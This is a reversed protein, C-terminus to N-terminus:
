AAVPQRDRRGHLQRLLRWTVWRHILYNSVAAFGIAVADALVLGGRPLLIFPWASRLLQFVAFQVILGYVSMLEYILLGRLFRAVSRQPAQFTLSSNLGYNWLISVQVGFLVAYAVPIGVLRAVLFGFLNVFAGSLGVLSYKVAEASVRQGFRLQALALLYDFVVGGTLKTEGRTRARFRYGVESVQPEGRSLLELLIKFGRPNLDSEVSRLYERSCAFYGSMPDRVGVAVANNALWTAVNSVFRRHRSWDGYGGGPAKRSGVSIDAGAQVERVLQPLITEDHQLDADIVALVDGRGRQLGALVASSLGREDLRRIVQVRQDPWDRAIAWTEDPSDDDVVLIEFDIGDLVQTLATLLLPLNEAENYTPVM